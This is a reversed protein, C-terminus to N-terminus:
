HRWDCVCDVRKTYPSCSWGGSCNGSFALRFCDWFGNCFCLRANGDDMCAYSQGASSSGRGTLQPLIDSSEILIPGVQSDAVYYHNHRSFLSYPATFGPVNM